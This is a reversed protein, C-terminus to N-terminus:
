TLSEATAQYTVETQPLPLSLTRCAGLVKDAVAAGFAILFDDATLTVGGAEGQRHLFRWVQFSQREDLHAFITMGDARM